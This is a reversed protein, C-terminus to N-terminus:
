IAKQRRYNSHQGQGIGKFCQKHFLKANFNEPVSTLEGPAVHAGQKETLHIATFKQEM